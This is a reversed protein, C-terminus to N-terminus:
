RARRRHSPSASGGLFPHTSAGALPRRWAYLIRGRFLLAHSRYSPEFGASRFAEPPFRAEPGCVLCVDGGPQGSEAAVSRLFGSLWPRDEDSGRVWCHHLIRLPRRRDFRIASGSPDAPWRQASTVWATALIEGDREGLWPVHGRHILIRVSHLRRRSSHWEPRMALDVLDSLTGRRIRLAGDPNPQGSPSSEEGHWAWLEEVRWSFPVRDFLGEAWPSSASPGVDGVVVRSVQDVARRLVGLLRPARRRLGDRCRTRLQAVLVRPRSRHLVLTLNRGEHNAFRYKFPDHGVAFDFVAIGTGRCSLFLHRLLVMGPSLDWYSVDFSPKYWIFKRGYRFGFHYAIPRGELELVSFRLTSGPDLRDVLAEFFARQDPHGFQPTDGALIWRRSHQRFFGPLHEHIETREEINRFTLRGIRLLAREKRRLSGRSALGELATDPCIGLRIEPCPFEGVQVLRSRLGHPLHELGSALNGDAPVNELLCRHWALDTRALLTELAEALAPGADTRRALLDNYDSTVLQRPDPAPHALFRLEQNRLRLPLFGVPGRPSLVTLVVLRDERSRCDWVARLWPLSQFVENRPSAEHLERWADRFSELRPFSDIVEVRM